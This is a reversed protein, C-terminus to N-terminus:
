SFGLWTPRGVGRRPEQAQWVRAVGVGRVNYTKYWMSMTVSPAQQLQFLDGFIDNKLTLLGFLKMTM